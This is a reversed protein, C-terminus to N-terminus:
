PESQQTEARGAGASRSRSARRSSTSARIMASWISLLALLAAGRPELALRGGALRQERRQLRALAVGGLVGLRDDVSAVATARALQPQGVLSITWTAWTASSCSTPLSPTGSAIRCFGPASSSASHRIM